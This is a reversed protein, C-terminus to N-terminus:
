STTIVKGVTKNDSSKDNNGLKLGLVIAIIGLVIVLAVVNSGKKHQKIYTLPNNSNHQQTGEINGHTQPRHTTNQDRGPSNAFQNYGSNDLREFDFHSAM